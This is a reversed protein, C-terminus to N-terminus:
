LPGNYMPLGLRTGAKLMIRDLTHIESAANNAAIALHLADGARLGTDPQALYDRALWYDARSPLLTAFSEEIMLQFRDRIPVAERASIQGMRIARALFSAFEVTTWDSISWDGFPLGALFDSVQDSSAEPLVLPILISTDFYRM